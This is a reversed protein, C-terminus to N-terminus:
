SREMQHTVMTSLINAVYKYNTCGLYSYLAKDIKGHAKYYNSLIMCGLNINNDPHNINGYIKLDKIKDRHYKPVVQMLGIAGKKSIKRKGFTSEYYILSTVLEYPLNYKHSYKVITKAYNNVLSDSLKTDMLTKILIKCRDLDTVVHKEKKIPNQNPLTPKIEIPEISSILVQKDKMTSADANSIFSNLNNIRFIGICLAIISFLNLIILVKTRKSNNDM